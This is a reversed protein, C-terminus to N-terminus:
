QKKMGGTSSGSAGSSGSMGSGTTTESPMIVAAVERSSPDVLLIDNSNQLKAYEYSRAEPVQSSVKSPLQHLTLSSPAKEGVKARFGSPAMQGKESHLNKAIINKQNSTLSLEDASALSVGGVLM